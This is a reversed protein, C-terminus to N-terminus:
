DALHQRSLFSWMVESANIDYSVTGAVDRSLDTPVGAWNHGGGMVAYMEVATEANCDAYTEHWVRTNDDPDLDHEAYFTRETTCNNHTLWFNLTEAASLQYGYDVNEVVFQGGDWAFVPDETGQIMLMSIPRSPACEDAVHQMMLSGTLAFAAIRDALQCALLYGLNGGSSFGTIYIREPDISYNESLTDILQAIFGVDDTNQQVTTLFELGLGDNWSGDIGDPYAVIFGERDAIADFGTLQRMEEGSYAGRHLVILLPMPSDVNDPVHLTFTRTQGDHELADDQAHAISIFTLLGLTLLIHLLRRM